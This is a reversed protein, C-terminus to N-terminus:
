QQKQILMDGFEDVKGYDDNVLKMGVYPPPINNWCWYLRTCISVKFKKNKSM